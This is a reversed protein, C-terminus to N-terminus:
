LCEWHDEANVMLKHSLLLQVVESHGFVAAHFLSTRGINDETNIDIKPNDLLLKVM